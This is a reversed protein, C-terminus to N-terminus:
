SRPPHFIRQPRQQLALRQPQQPAIQAMPVIAPQIALQPLAALSPCCLQSNDPCASKAPAAPAQQHHCHAQTTMNGMPMMSAEAQVMAPWAWVLAFLLTISLLIKRM